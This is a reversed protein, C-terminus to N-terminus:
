SIYKQCLEKARKIGEKSLYVSKSRKGQTLMGEEDLKNLAEFPYGKWSRRTDESFDKEEWSTMYLLLLTLEEIQEKM